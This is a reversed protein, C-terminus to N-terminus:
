FSLRYSLAFPMRGFCFQPFVLSGQSPPAGTFKFRALRPDFGFRRLVGELRSYLREKFKILSLLYRLAYYLTFVAHLYMGLLGIFGQLPKPKEYVKRALRDLISAFATLGALFSGLLAFGVYCSPPPEIITLAILAILAVPSVALISWPVLDPPVTLGIMIAGEILGRVRARQWARVEDFTSPMSVEVKAEPCYKVKVERKMALLTFFFDDSRCSPPYIIKTFVSTKTLKNNGPAHRNRLFKFLIHYAHYWFFAMSWFSSHKVKNFGSLVEHKGDMCKRMSLMYNPSYINESDGWVIYSYGRSMAYRVAEIRAPGVGGKVSQYRFEICPYKRRFEEVVERSNDRSYGDMVLVDFCECIRCKRQSTLSDLCKRLGEANDKNMIVLLIKGVAM